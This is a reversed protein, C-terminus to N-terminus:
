ECGKGWIQWKEDTKSLNYKIRFFKMLAILIFKDLKNKLLLTHSPLTPVPTIGAVNIGDM